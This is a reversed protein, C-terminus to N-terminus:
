AFMRRTVEVDPLMESQRETGHDTTGCADRSNMELETPYDFARRGYRAATRDVRM